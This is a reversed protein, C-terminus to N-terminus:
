AKMGMGECERPGVKDNANIDAGAAVLMKVMDFIIANPVGSRIVKILTTSGDQTGASSPNYTLNPAVGCSAPTPHREVM